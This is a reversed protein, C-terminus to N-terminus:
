RGKISLLKKLALVDKLGIAGDANYDACALDVDGAGGLAGSLASATGGPGGDTWVTELVARCVECYVISCGHLTGDGSPVTLAVADAAPTHGRAPIIETEVTKGCEACIRGAVGGATCSAEKIVVADGSLSHGMKELILTEMPEGCIVCVKAALGRRDCSGEDLVSWVDSMVHEGGPVVDTVEEKGCVSCKLLTYGDAGCSPPVVTRVYTHPAPPTAIKSVCAGCFRCVERETGGEECDAVETVTEFEHLCEYYFGENSAYVCAAGVGYSYIEFDEVNAYSIGTTYKGLCNTDLNVVSPPLTVSRLKGCDRFAHAGVTELTSPFSVTKLSPSKDFAVDAIVKVGEGIELSEGGYAGKNTLVTGGFMTYVGDPLANYYPTGNLFLASVSRPSAEEDFTVDCLSSCGYFANTQLVKVDKGFAVSTLPCNQFALPEIREAHVLSINLLARCNSFAYTLINKNEPSLTVTELSSDDSFMSKAVDASSAGFDAYKLSTCNAFSYEGASGLADPFRVFRLNQCNGFSSKGIRTLTSPLSIESLPSFGYFAYDGVSTVGEGIVVRATSTDLMRWPAEGPLNHSSKQLFDYMDGEGTVTLVNSSFRWTLNDGCVGETAIAARAPFAPFVSILILLALLFSLPASETRKKRAM